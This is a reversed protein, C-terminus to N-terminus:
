CLDEPSECNKILTLIRQERGRMAKTLEQWQRPNILKHVFNATISTIGTVRGILGHIQASAQLSEYIPLQRQIQSQVMSHNQHLEEPENFRSIELFTCRQCHVVLCLHYVVPVCQYEQAM